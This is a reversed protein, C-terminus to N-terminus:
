QEDVLNEDISVYALPGDAVVLENTLIVQLSQPGRFIAAYSELIPETGHIPPWGPHTCVSRDGPEWLNTMAALDKREFADYYAANAASVLVQQTRKDRDVGGNHAPFEHSGHTLILSDKALISFAPVVGGTPVDSRYSSVMLEPVTSRASTSATRSLM